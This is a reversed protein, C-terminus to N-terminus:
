RVAPATRQRRRLAVLLGIGLLAWFRGQSRPMVRAVSCGGTDSSSGGTSRSSSGPASPDDESLGGGSNGGGSDSAGSGTAGTAGVGTGGTGAGGTGNLAEEVEEDTPHDGEPCDQRAAFCAEPHTGACSQTAFQEAFGACWEDFYGDPPVTCLKLASSMWGSIEELVGFTLGETSLCEAALSIDDGGLLPRAFIEFCVETPEGEATRSLTRGMFRNEEDGLLRLDYVYQNTNEGQVSAVASVQYLAQEYFGQEVATVAIELCEVREGTVTSFNNLMVTTTPLASSAEVIAFQVIGLFTGTSLDVQYTGPAPPTDPLWGFYQVGLVASVDVLQGSVPV